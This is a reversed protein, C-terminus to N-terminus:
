RPRRARLNLFTLPKAFGRRDFYAHRMYETLGAFGAQGLSAYSYVLGLKPLVGMDEMMLPYVGAWIGVRVWFCILENVVVSM